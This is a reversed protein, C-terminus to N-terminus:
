NSNIQVKHRLLLIWLQKPIQGKGPRKMKMMWGKFGMTAVSLQLM